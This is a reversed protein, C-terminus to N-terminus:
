WELVFRHLTGFQQSWHCVIKASIDAAVIALLGHGWAVASLLRIRIFIRDNYKMALFLSSFLSIRALPLFQLSYFGYFCEPSFFLLRLRDSVPFLNFARNQPVQHNGSGALTSGM